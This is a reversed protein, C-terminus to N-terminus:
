SNEVSFISSTLEKCLDWLKEKKELSTKKGNKFKEQTRIKRDFWFEGNVLEQETVALFIITDAGEYYNRLFLKMIKRFTPLSKQVGPTDVWGPHMSHFQYTPYKQAFLNALDVQNRKNEAYAMVGDFERQNYNYDLLVQSTSYMGGSSVWIFRGHEKVINHDILEKTLCYTSLTMLAFTVEMQKSNVKREDLLAGANHIFCDIQPFSIKLAEIVNKNDLPESLDALILHINGKNIKKFAAIAKQAREQNRCVIIVNANMQLLIKTTEFGIGSNAGTVVYFKQSLDLKQPYYDEQNVGLLFGLKTFSLLSFYNLM